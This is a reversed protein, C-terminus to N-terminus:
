SGSPAESWANRQQKSQSELYSQAAKLRAEVNKLTETLATIAKDAAFNVNQAANQASQLANFSGAQSSRSAGNARSLDYNGQADYVSKNAADKKAQEAAIKAQIDAKQRTLAQKAAEADALKAAEREDKARIVADGANQNVTVTSREVDATGIAQFLVDSMKGAHTARARLDSIQKEKAKKEAELREVEKKANEAEKRLRDREADGDETRKNPNYWTGDKENRMTSLASLTSARTRARLIAKDDASLSSEIQDAASNADEAEQNYKQRRIVVDTRKRDAAKRARDAQYRSRISERQKDADTANPDVAALENAEAAASAADEAERRLKVEEDFLENDRSRANSVAQISENLEKYSESLAKVEAAQSKVSLEERLKKAKETDKNLWEQLAKFASIVTNIVGVAGFAGL